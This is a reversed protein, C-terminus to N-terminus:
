RPVPVICRGWNGTYDHCESIQDWKPQAFCGIVFGLVASILVKPVVRDKPGAEREMWAGFGRVVRAVLYIVPFFVLGVFSLLGVGFSFM